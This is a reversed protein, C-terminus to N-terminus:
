IRHFSVLTDLTRQESMDEGFKCRLWFESPSQQTFTNQHHHTYICLYPSSIHLIDADPSSFNLGM